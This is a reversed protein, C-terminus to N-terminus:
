CIEYLTIIGCISWRAHIAETMVVAMLEVCKRVSRLSSTVLGMVTNGPRAKSFTRIYSKLFFTRIYASFDYGQVSRTSSTTCNKIIRNVAFQHFVFFLFRRLSAADMVFAVPARLGMWGRAPSILTEEM